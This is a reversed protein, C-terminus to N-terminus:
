EDKSDLDFLPQRVKTVVWLMMITWVLSSVVITAALVKEDVQEGIGNLDVLVVAALILGLTNGAVFIGLLLGSRRRAGPKTPVFVLPGAAFFLGVIVAGILAGLAGKGGEVIGGVLVCLLAAAIPGM